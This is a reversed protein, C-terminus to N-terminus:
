TLTKIVILFMCRQMLLLKLLYFDLKKTVLLLLIYGNVTIRHQLYIAIRCSFIQMFTVVAPWRLCRRRRRRYLLLQVCCIFHSNLCYGAASQAFGM